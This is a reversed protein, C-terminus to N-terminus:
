IKEEDSLIYVAKLFDLRCEPIRHDGYNKISIKGSTVDEYLNRIVGTLTKDLWDAPMNKLAYVTRAFGIEDSILDIAGSETVSHTVEQIFDLKEVIPAYYLNKIMRLFRILALTRNDEPLNGAATIDEALLKMGDKSIIRSFIRITKDRNGFTLAAALTQRSVNNLVDRLRGRESFGELWDELGKSSLHEIAIASEYSRRLIDTLELGRIDLDMERIATLINRNIIYNVEDTWRYTSSIRAARTKDAIEQRVGRSLNDLLVQGKDGLGHIYAALMDTSAINKHLLSNLLRQINKDSLSLIIEDFGEPPNSLKQYILRDLARLKTESLINDAPFDLIAAVSRLNNETLVLAANFNKNNIVTIFPIELVNETELGSSPNVLGDKVQLFVKKGSVTNLIKYNELETHFLIATEPSIDSNDFGIFINEDVTVQKCFLRVLIGTRSPPLIASIRAPKLKFRPPLFLRGTIKM